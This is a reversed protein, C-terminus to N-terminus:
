RVAAEALVSLVDRVSVVGALRDDEQVPLHRVGAGLMRQAAEVVTDDPAIAVVDVTMIDRVELHDPNGDEALHRVLDRESVVGVLVGHEFVLLVGIEDAALAEAAQRMSAGGDVIAVPWMMVKRVPDTPRAHLATSM